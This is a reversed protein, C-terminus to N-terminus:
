ISELHSLFSDCALHCPRAVVSVGLARNCWKRLFALPFPFRPCTVSQPVLPLLKGSIRQASQLSPPKKQKQNEGQERRKVSKDINRYSKVIMRTTVGVPIVM